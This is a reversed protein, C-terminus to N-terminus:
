MGYKELRYILVHRPVHLLRAAKSRNGGSKELAKLILQREVSELSIGEPPIKPIKVDCAQLRKMNLESREIVSGKHVITTRVVATNKRGDRNAPTGAGTSACTAILDTSLLVEPLASPDINAAPAM